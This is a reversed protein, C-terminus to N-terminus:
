TIKFKQPIGFANEDNLSTLTPGASHCVQGTIKWIERCWIRCAVCVNANFWSHLKFYSADCRLRQRWITSRGSDVVTYFQDERQVRGQPRTMATTERRTLLLATRMPNALLMGNLQQLPGLVGSRSKNKTKMRM